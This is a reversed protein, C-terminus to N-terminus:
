KGQCPLCIESSEGSMNGTEESMNGTSLDEASGNVPNESSSDSDMQSSAPVTNNGPSNVPITRVDQSSTLGSEGNVGDSVPTETISVGSTLQNTRIGNIDPSNAVCGAFIVAAVALGAFMLITIYKM